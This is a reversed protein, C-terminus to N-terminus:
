DLEARIPTSEIKMQSFNQEANLNLSINPKVTGWQLQLVAGAEYGLCNRWECHCQGRRRRAAPCLETGTM